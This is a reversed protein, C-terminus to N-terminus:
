AQPSIKFLMESSSIEFLRKRLPPLIDLAVLLQLQNLRWSADQERQRIISHPTPKTNGFNRIKAEERQDRKALKVELAVEDISLAGCVLSRAQKEVAEQRSPDKTASQIVAIAKNILPLSKRLALLEDQVDKPFQDVDLNMGIWERLAMDTVDIPPYLKEEVRTIGTPTLEEESLTKEKVISLILADLRILLDEPIVETFGTIKGTPDRQRVADILIRLEHCQVIIAPAANKTKLIEELRILYFATEIRGLNRLEQTVPTEEM